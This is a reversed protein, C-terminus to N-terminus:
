VCRRAECLFKQYRKKHTVRDASRLLEQKLEWTCVDVLFARKSAINGDPAADQAADAVAGLHVPGDNNPFIVEVVDPFVLPPDSARNKKEREESRWLQAARVGSNKRSCTEPVLLPVGVDWRMNRGAETHLFSVMNGDPLAPLRGERGRQDIMRESSIELVDQVRHTPTRHLFM